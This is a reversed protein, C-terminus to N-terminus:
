IRKLIILRRTETIKDLTENFEFEELLNLTVHELRPLPRVIESEHAVKLIKVARHLVTCLVTKRDCTTERDTRRDTQRYHQHITIM